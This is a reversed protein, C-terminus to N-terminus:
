KLKERSYILSFSEALNLGGQSGRVKALSNIFEASRPHPFPRMEQEYAELAKIKMALQEETVEVFINPRFPERTFNWETSSPIEFSLVKEIYPKTAPRVAAEVAEITLRHDVNVDTPNHSYIIKPKFEEVVEEVAQVIDLMPVSDFKNDPFDKLILKEVGLVRSAQMASEKLQALAEKQQDGTQNKRSTIGQGLVITWVRSQAGSHKAITAGCGLVEDDPHAAVVLINEEATKKM